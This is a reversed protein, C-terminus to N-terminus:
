VQQKYGLSWLGNCQQHPSKKTKKTKNSLLLPLAKVKWTQKPADLLFVFFQALFSM